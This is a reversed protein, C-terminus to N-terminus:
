LKIVEVIESWNVRWVSGTYIMLTVRDEYDQQSLWHDYEIKANSVALEPVQAIVSQINALLDENGKIVDLTLETENPWDKETSM